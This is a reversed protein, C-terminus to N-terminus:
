SMIGAFQGITFGSFSPAILPGFWMILVPLLDACDGFGIVYHQQVLVQSLDIESPRCRGPNKAKQEWTRGQALHM